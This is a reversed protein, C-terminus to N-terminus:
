ERDADKDGHLVRVDRMENWLSRAVIPVASVGILVTVSVAAEIGVCVAAIAMDMGIGVVVTVWTYRAALFRGPYTQLFLAYGTGWVAALILGFGYREIM